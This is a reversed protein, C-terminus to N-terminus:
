SNGKSRYRFSSEQLRRLPILPKVNWRQERRVNERWWADYATPKLTTRCLREQARLLRIYHQVQEQSMHLAEAVQRTTPLEEREVLYDWIYCYVRELQMDVINM